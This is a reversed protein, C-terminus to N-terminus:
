AYYIQYGDLIQDIILDHRQRMEINGRKIISMRQPLITASETLRYPIYTNRLCHCTGHTATVIGVNKGGYYNIM